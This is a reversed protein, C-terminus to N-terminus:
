PRRGSIGLRRAADPRREILREWYVYDGINACEALLDELARDRGRYFARAALIGEEPALNSPDASLAISREIEDREADNFGARRAGLPVLSLVAEHKLLVLMAKEEDRLPLRALLAESKRWFEDIIGAVAEGVEFPSMTAPPVFKRGPQPRVPAPVGKGGVTAEDARAKTAMTEDSAVLTAKPAKVAGAHIWGTLGSTTQVQIWGGAEGLRIVTDDAKLVLLAPAYFQPNRRLATTHINIVVVAVAAPVLWVAAAAGSLMLRRLSRGM